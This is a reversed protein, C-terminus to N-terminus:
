RTLRKSDNFLWEEEVEDITYMSGGDKYIVFLDTTKNGKTERVQLSTLRKCLMNCLDEYSLSSGKKTYKNELMKQRLDFTLLNAIQRESCAELVAQLLFNYLYEFSLYEEDGLYENKLYERIVTLPEIDQSQEITKCYGKSAAIMKWTHLSIIKQVYGDNTIINEM